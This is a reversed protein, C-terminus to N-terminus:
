VEVAPVEYRRSAEDRAVVTLSPPGGGHMESRPYTLEWMRGDRPDKYLTDWGSADTAVRELRSKVLWEIRECVADGQMQAGVQVWDGRLASEDSALDEFATVAVGM